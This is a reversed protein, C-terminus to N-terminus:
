SEASFTEQSKQQQAPAEPNTPSESYSAQPKPRIHVTIMSTLIIIIVCIFNMITRIISWIITGIPAIVASSIVVNSIVIIIILSFVVIVAQIFTIALIMVRM